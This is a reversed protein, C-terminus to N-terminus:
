ENYFGGSQQADTGFLTLVGDLDLPNFGGEGGTPVIITDIGRLVEAMKLAVMKDSGIVQMAKNKMETRKAEALQVLLDAEAKKKRAYLEQEAGKRVKYAQGEELAVKVRMEGEQIMRKLKAQEIASKALAQNKFFLQDQLKKAEIIDQFAPSYTLSRILVQDVQMGKPELEADLMKRAVEVREMRLGSNYFEEANLNGLAEKLTPEAKPKIGDDLFKQGEGLENIVTLPEIIRFLITVDVDVSFGDTTQIKVLQDFYHSDGQGYRNNTLELVQVNRPLISIREMGFPMVFALGPGYIKDQWGKKGGFSIRRMKIGYEDPRVYELCSNYVVAVLVLLLLAMVLLKTAKNPMKISPIKPWGGDKNIIEPKRISM